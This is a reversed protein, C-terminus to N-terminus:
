MKSHHVHGIPIPINDTAVNQCCNIRILQWKNFIINKFFSLIVAKQYQKGNFAFTNLLCPP